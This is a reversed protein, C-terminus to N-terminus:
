SSSLQIQRWDHRHHYNLVTHPSTSSLIAKENEDTADYRCFSANLIQGASFPEAHPLIAAPVKTLVEWFNAGEPKNIWAPFGVPNQRFTDLAAEGNKIKEQWNQPFALHLRHGAPTAHLELYFPVGTREIFIEFVDGLLWMDQNDATSATTIHRDPLHALVWFASPEWAFYVSAILLDPHEKDLWAQRMEWPGGTIQQSATSFDPPEVTNLRPAISPQTTM